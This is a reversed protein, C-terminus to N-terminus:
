ASMASLVEANTSFRALQDRIFEIDEGTNLSIVSRRLLEVRAFEDRNSYMFAENRTGSKQLDICPFIRRDMLRRDLNIESNGTGKFEEFIIDDMKSGGTNVLATAIITLSGGEELNRAAGFFQKPKTLANADLGGSLLKGSPPTVTNYARALRTISDLLIVVDRGCEALRKAKEIVIEALLVHRSAPEDFTSSVVEGKISRTMMTVEEPREGILLAIIVAKPYNHSIGHALDQLLYTKGTRPAAVILCRQGFGIPCLLDVIRTSMNNPEFEFHIKRLPNIATLNDFLLRSKLQEPNLENVTEVTLLAFNDKGEEKRPKIQGFVVDGERLGFRKIQAKSVYVDEPSRRYNFDPSRLFGYADVIELVGSAFIRSNDTDAKARLISYVLENKPIGQPNEIKLESALACLDRLNKQKLEQMYM